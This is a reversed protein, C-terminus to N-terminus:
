VEASLVSHGQAFLAPTGNGPSASGGTPPPPAQLATPHQPLSRTCLHSECAHPIRLPIVPSLCSNGAQEEWARGWSHVPFLLFSATVLVVLLELLAAVHHSRLPLFGEDVATDLSILVSLLALPWCPCRSGGPGRWGWM